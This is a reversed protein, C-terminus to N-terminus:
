PRREIDLGGNYAQAPNAANREPQNRRLNNRAPEWRAEKREPHKAEYRAYRKQGKTSLNYKRQTALYRERATEM